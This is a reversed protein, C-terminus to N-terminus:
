KAGAKQVLTLGIVLNMTPIPVYLPFFQRHVVDFYQDLQELIESHHNIHECAIFWDYSIHYRKEFLPRASINRAIGYALGPDCPILVVFRGDPALLRRIEGLADPLKPLHELVHIALIRDFYGDERDVHKQIDGVITKAGPFNQRIRAALDERLELATYEQRGLDEYRTHEGLGAGIDLTRQNADPKFTRLPYGHNFKEIIGYYSKPLTDLWVAYFDERIRAQEETLTPLQKPWQGMQEFRKIAM